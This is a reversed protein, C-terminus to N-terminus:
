YPHIKYLSHLPTHYNLKTWDPKRLNNAVNSSLSIVCHIKEFPYKIPSMGLRVNLTGERHFICAIVSAARKVM